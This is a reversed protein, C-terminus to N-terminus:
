QMWLLKFWVLSWKNRSSFYKYQLMASKRSSETFIGSFSISLFTMILFHSNVSFYYIDLLMSIFSSSPFYTIWLDQDSTMCEWYNPKWWLYYSYFTATYIWTYIVALYWMYLYHNIVPLTTNLYLYRNVHIYFNNYSYM